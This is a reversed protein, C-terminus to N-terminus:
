GRGQVTAIKDQHNAFSDVWDAAKLERREGRPNGRFDGGREFYRQPRGVLVRHASAAFCPQGAAFVLWAEGQAVDLRAYERGSSTAAALLQPPLGDVRVKWGNLYNPCDVEECTAPRWHTALPQAMQYTKMHEAGLLPAVHMLGDAARILEGAV